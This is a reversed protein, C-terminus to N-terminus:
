QPYEYIIIYKQHYRLMFFIFFDKLLLFFLLRDDLALHAIDAIRSNAMTVAPYTDYAYKFLFDAGLGLPGVVSCIFCAESMSEFLLFFAMSEGVFEALLVGETLLVSLEISIVAIFSFLEVTVIIVFNFLTEDPVHWSLMLLPILVVALDAM